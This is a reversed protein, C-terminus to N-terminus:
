SPILPQESIAEPANTNKVRGAPVGTYSVVAVKSGIGTTVLLVIDIKIVSGINGIGKIAKKAGIKRLQVNLLYVYFSSPNASLKAPRCTHYSISNSFGTGVLDRSSKAKYKGRRIKGPFAM